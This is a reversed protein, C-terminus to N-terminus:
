LRNTKNNYDNSAMAACARARRMNNHKPPKQALQKSDKDKKM